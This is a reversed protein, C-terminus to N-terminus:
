TSLAGNAGAKADNMQKWFSLWEDSEKYSDIDTVFFSLDYDQFEDKPIPKTTRSGDLFALRVKNEKMIFQRVYTMMEAEMRM